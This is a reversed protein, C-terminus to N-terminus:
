QGKRHSNPTSSRHKQVAATIAAVIRPNVSSATTSVASGTGPAINRPSGAGASAAKPPEPFWRTVAASMGTTAFVLLTLFVVVTGMGFLMLELGQSTLSM